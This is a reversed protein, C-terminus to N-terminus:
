SLSRKYQGLMVNLIGRLQPVSREDEDRQQVSLVFTSNGEYTDLFANAAERLYAAGPKAIIEDTFTADQGYKALFAGFLSLLRANNAFSLARKPASAKVPAAPAAPAAPAPTAPVAAVTAKIPQSTMVYEVLKTLVEVQGDVRANVQALQKHLTVVEMSLAMIQAQETSLGPRAAKIREVQAAMGLPRAPESVAASVVKRAPM